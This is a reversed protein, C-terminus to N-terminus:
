WAEANFHLCLTVDPRIKKNVIEARRRIESNRYFLLEQEWQLTHEKEPDAPGSYTERPSADGARQLVAKAVEKLDGPRKPTVPETKARVFTVVAGMMRLKAAVLKAVQLTMDGEQVPKSDGVQFWREEMQAWKGGIHGPDLAIKVGSLPRGKKAKPLSAAPRWVRPIRKQSKEDAAFRLTFFSKEDRDILFRVEGPRVDILEPAVGRPCYVERLLREFEDHTITEQYREFAKWDPTNGLPSINPAALAQGALLCLVFTARLLRQLTRPLM